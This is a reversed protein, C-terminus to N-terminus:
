VLAEARLSELRQSLGEAGAMEEALTYPIIPQLRIDFTRYFLEEAIERNKDQCSFLLVDGSSVEWLLEVIRPVPIARALLEFHVRERIEKRLRSPLRQMDKEAMVKKEELSCFKKLVAAPVKRQEIRIGLLMFDEFSIDNLTITESYPDHASCWGCNVEEIGSSEERFLMSDVKELTRNWFSEGTKGEARYRTFTLTASLFAM